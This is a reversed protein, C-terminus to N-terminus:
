KEERAEKDRFDKESFVQAEFIRFKCDKDKYANEPLMAKLCLQKLMTDRDWSQETAAQPLFLATATGKKLIVGNKGVVIETYSSVPKPETLM